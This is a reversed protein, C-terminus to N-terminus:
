NRGLVSFTERYVQELIGPRLRGIARMMSRELTAVKDAKVRSDMPLHGEILDRQSVLVSHAADMLNSTMACVVVDASAENYARRSLVVAPRHKTARLNTYPFPVLVITGPEFTM